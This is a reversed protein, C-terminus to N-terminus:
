LNGGNLGHDIDQIAAAPDLTEWRFCSSFCIAAIPEIFAHSSEEPRFVCVRVSPTSLPGEPDEAFHFSKEPLPTKGAFVAALPM